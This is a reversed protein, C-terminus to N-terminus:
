TSFIREFKSLKSRSIKFNKIFLFGSFKIISLCSILIKIAKLECLRLKSYFTADLLQSRPFALPWFGCCKGRGHRMNAKKDEPLWCGYAVVARDENGRGVANSYEPM